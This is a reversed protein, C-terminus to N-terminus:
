WAEARVIVVSSSMSSVSILRVPRDPSYSAFRAIVIRIVVM